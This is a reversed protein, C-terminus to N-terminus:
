ARRHVASYVARAKDIFDQDFPSKKNQWSREKEHESSKKNKFFICVIAAAASRSLPPSSLDSFTAPFLYDHCQSLYSVIFKEVEQNVICSMEKEKVMFFLNKERLQIDQVTLSLLYKLSQRSKLLLYVLLYDRQCDLDKGCLEGLREEQAQYSCLSLLSKDWVRGQREELFMIFAKLSSGLRVMRAPSTGKALLFLLYDVIMKEKYEEQNLNEQKKCLYAHLLNIDNCYTHATRVSFGKLLLFDIFNNM